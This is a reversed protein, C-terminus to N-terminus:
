RATEELLRQFLVFGPWFDDAGCEIGLLSRNEGDLLHFTGSQITYRPTPSFPIVTEKGNVIFRVGDGELRVGRSWDAFGDSMLRRHLDESLFRSVHDRLRELNRTGEGSTESSFSVTTGPGELAISIVTGTFSGNVYQETAHYRLRKMESHLVTSTGLVSRSVVGREHCRLSRSLYWIGMSSPILGVVLCFGGVLPDGGANPDGTLFDWAGVLFLLGVVVLSVGPLWATRSQFLVRGLAHAGGAM